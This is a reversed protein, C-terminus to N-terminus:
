PAVEQQAPRVVFIEQVMGKSRDSMEGHGGTERRGLAKAKGRGATFENTESSALKKLGM